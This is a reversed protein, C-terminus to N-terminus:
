HDFFAEATAVFERPKEAHLWHGAEPLKAFRAKPFLNKITMRYDPRVYDSNAGSLFLTPSEFMADFQPFALIKPMERALVELNMRWRKDPIDLSQTFFSQLAAEVGLTGLQDAADSRRAVKDLDVNRMADIFQMQSHSYSVPAIDAVMVRAVHEPYTLALAMAAKGGMSHGIVDLPGHGLEDIVRALDAALDPYGHTESWFSHGHNRMDVTIVPRTTSLRKAIAGWNRASGFLGHAILCPTASTPGDYRTFNLITDTM